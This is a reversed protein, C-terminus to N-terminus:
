KLIDNYFRKNYIYLVNYSDKTIQLQLINKTIYEETNINTLQTIFINNNNTLTNITEDICLHYSAM